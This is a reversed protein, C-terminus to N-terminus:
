VALRRTMEVCEVRLLPLIVTDISTVIVSVIVSHGLRLITVAIISHGYRLSPVVTSVRVVVSEWRM